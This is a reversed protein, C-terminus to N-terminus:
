GYEEERGDHECGGPDAIRCGAGCTSGKAIWSFEFADEADNEEEDPDGDIEDLRDILRETLGELDHRSLKPIAQEILSLPLASARGMALHTRM